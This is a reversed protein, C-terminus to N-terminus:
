RNISWLDFRASGNPAAGKLWPQVGVTSYTVYLPAVPFTGTPGFWIAEARDYEGARKAPDTELAAQDILKEAEGCALGTRWFGYQCHIADGTWANADAYDGAWSALWIQPRPADRPDTTSIAGHAVAQVYSAPASRVSFTAPGCGLVAQWQGVLAQAAAASQAQDDVLLVLKEPLRCGNLKSAALATKAGDPNFGSNDPQGGPGGITGPPTFRSMPLAAGPLVQNVLDERNIAQSLARRFAEDQVIPRELSFGLVTVAQIPARLVLDPKSQALLQTAAADLRAFDVTGATFQQALADPTPAFTVEVRDVNGSLPDPWVPNRILTIQQGRTWAAMAWPGDTMITGVRTWDPGKAIAERPVPRFEPLALLSVFYPAPFALKIELRQDSLAQVGLQRAIFIDSLLEPSAAAISHCGQIISVSHVAPNPPEPDCARRLAYVFDGAVVPRITEVQQSDPNFSVWKVDSRLNFTWTLGDSSITWYRALTPQIQGSTPDYRTLGVFLNEVLDRGAADFRPLSVPDLDDVPLMAVRVTHPEAARLTLLPFPLLFVSLVFLARHLRGAIM